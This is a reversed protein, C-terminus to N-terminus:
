WRKFRAIQASSPGRGKLGVPRTKRQCKIHNSRASGTLNLTVLGLPVCLDFRSPATARASKVMSLRKNFPSHCASNSSCCGGAEPGGGATGAGAGLREGPWRRRTLELSGGRLRGSRIRWRLEADGANDSGASRNRGTLAGSSCELSARWAMAGAHCGAVAHSHISPQPSQFPSIPASRPPSRHRCTGCSVM